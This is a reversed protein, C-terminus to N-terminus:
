YGGKLYLIMNIGLNHVNFTSNQITLVNQACMQIEKIYLYKKKDGNKSGQRVVCGEFISTLKLYTISNPDM